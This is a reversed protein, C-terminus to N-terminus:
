KNPLPGLYKVYAATWDKAIDKQVEALDVKKACVLAHLKNELVDKVHANLPRTNYSQPWLNKIDNSGGLELSILHDIEFSSDAPTLKYEEFVKKKTTTLVDRVGPQSTYGKVCIVDLTAAPNVDGPTLSSNPKIPLTPGATAKMCLVITAAVLAMLQTKKNM